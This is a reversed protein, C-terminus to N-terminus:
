GASELPFGFALTNRAPETQGREVKRGPCEDEGFGGRFFACGNMDNATLFLQRLEVAASELHDVRREFLKTLRQRTFIVRELSRQRVRTQEASDAVRVRIFDQM